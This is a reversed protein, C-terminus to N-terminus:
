SATGLHESLGSQALLWRARNEDEPSVMVRRPLVGVSGELISMHVDFVVAALGEQQLLDVIYSVLVMDNSRVLERM